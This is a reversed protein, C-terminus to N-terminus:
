LKKDKLTFNHAGTKIKLKWWQQRKNLQHMKVAHNNDQASWGKKMINLHFNHHQRMIIVNCSKYIYINDCQM